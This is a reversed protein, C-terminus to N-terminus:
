EIYTVVFAWVTNKYDIYVQWLEGDATLTKSLRINCRIAEPDLCSQWILFNTGDNDTYKLAPKTIDYVRNTRGYFIVTQEKANVVISLITDKMDTSLFYNGKPDLYAINFRTAKFKWRTKEEQCNSALSVLLTISLLLSKM